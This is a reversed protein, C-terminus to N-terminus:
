GERHRGHLWVTRAADRGRHGTIPLWLGFRYPRMQEGTGADYPLGVMATPEGLTNDRRVRLGAGYAYAGSLGTLVSLKALDHLRDPADQRVKVEIALVNAGDDNTRRRHLVVDPSIKRARDSSEGRLVKTVGAFREYEQDLHLGGDDPERALWRDLHRDLYIMMRGVVVRETTQLIAEDLRYLDDLTAEVAAQLEEFTPDAPPM